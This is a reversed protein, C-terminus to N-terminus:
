AGRLREPSLMEASLGWDALHSPIPMGRALAACSEGMAPSTQIGYGGQAAVWFFGSVVPDFGGVLGGDRVFSRLGAWTHSPRRIRFTTVEEVRYIATAIDLEEPQVDQPEVPDANAPSVLLQGADPKFYWDESASYTMPWSKFDHASLPDPTFLLASRRCPQLGISTAGALKAVHDAWAGAANVVVPTRWSRGDKAYVIWDAGHRDISVVEANCAVQGRQQTLGRLFGQHIAHVDMDSADPEILADRIKERQLVPVQECAKAAGIRVAGTGMSQLVSWHQELEGEQGPEAVMMAGRPTLLPQASFGSPPSDFFARSALTLARVQSGGYSAMYLAASRGTSHYGPQSERELVVVKGHLALWFSISAGAIGGGIVVYDVPECVSSTM